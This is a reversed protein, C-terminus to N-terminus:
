QSICECFLLARGVISLNAVAVACRAELRVMVPFPGGSRDTQHRLSLKTASTGAPNTEVPEGAARELAALVQALADRVRDVPDHRPGLFSLLLETMGSGRVATGSELRDTGRIGAM